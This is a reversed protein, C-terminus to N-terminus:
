GIQELFAPLMFDLLQKCYQPTAGQHGKNAAESACVLLEPMAMAASTRVDEMYQFKIM